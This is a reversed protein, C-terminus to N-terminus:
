YSKKSFPCPFVFYSRKLYRLTGYSDSSEDNCIPERERCEVVKVLSENKQESLGM